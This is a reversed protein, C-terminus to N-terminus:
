WYSILEPLWQLGHMLEILQIVAAGMVFWISDVLNRTFAGVHVTWTDETRFLTIKPWVAPTSRLYDGHHPFREALLHDESRIVPPYLAVYALVLASTILLSETILGLGLFGLGNCLYLPHRCVSYPGQDVLKSGKHGSIYLACWLRGVTAVAIGAIGPVLMAGALWTEQWVPVGLILLALAAAVVLRWVGIRYRTVFSDVKHSYFPTYPLTSSM